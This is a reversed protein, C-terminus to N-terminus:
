KATKTRAHHICKSKKEGASKTVNTRDKPYFVLLFVLVLDTGSSHERRAKAHELTALRAAFDVLYGLKHQRNVSPNWTRTRASSGIRKLPKSAGRCGKQGGNKTGQLSKQLSAGEVPLATPLVRSSNQTAEENESKRSKSEEGKRWVAELADRKAEMRIHSYHRLMQRSVHGAIDMITEEGAGSEALETILTHRTDHLRGKVAARERVNIWATKLTTIPRTPDLQHLKGFPFLYWQPEIKGFMLTFWQSHEQLAEYLPPNFPITRGEGADTNSRGVVLYRKELDVQEWKLTRIESSRMGTNTALMLAPYITPSKAGRAAEILQEKEEPSFVKAAHKPVKLKLLKDKKLRARILEGREGMIRLLVGVEENITKPAAGEKLREDQYDRVTRENIDVVMKDGLQRNVHKAACEAYTASRHRLAYSALYEKAVERLPRILQHRVDQINNIGKELERRRNQEAQKAITKSTSKSSEQIRRGGFLFEYWWINGRKFVSM